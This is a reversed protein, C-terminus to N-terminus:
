DHLLAYMNVKQAELQISLEEDMVNGMGDQIRVQVDGFTLIVGKIM